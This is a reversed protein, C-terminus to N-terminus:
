LRAHTKVENIPFLSHHPSGHMYCFIFTLVKSCNIFRIDDIDSCLM